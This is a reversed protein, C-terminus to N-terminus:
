VHHLDLSEAFINPTADENIADDGFIRADQGEILFAFRTAPEWRFSLRLQSLLYDEDNGPARAGFKFNSRNEYRFRVSGDVRFRPFQCVPSGFVLRSKRFASEIPAPRSAIVIIADPTCLQRDDAPLSLLSRAYSAVGALDPSPM